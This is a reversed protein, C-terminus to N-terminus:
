RQAARPNRFCAGIGSAAAQCQAFTTYSCDELGSGSALCWPYDMARATDSLVCFLAIIGLAVTILRRMTSNWSITFPDGAVAM